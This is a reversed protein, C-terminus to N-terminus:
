LILADVARWNGASKSQSQIAHGQKLLMRKELKVKIVAKASYLCM